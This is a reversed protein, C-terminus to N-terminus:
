SDFYSVGLQDVLGVGHVFEKMTMMMFKYPLGNLGRPIFALTNM